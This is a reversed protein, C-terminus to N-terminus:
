YIQKILIISLQYYKPVYFLQTNQLKSLHYPTIHQIFYVYFMFILESSKFPLNKLLYRNLIIQIRVQISKFLM